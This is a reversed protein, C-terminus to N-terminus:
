ETMTVLYRIGWETKEEQMNPLRLGVKFQRDDALHLVLVTEMPLGKPGFVELEVTQLGGPIEEGKAELVTQWTQASVNVDALHKGQTDFVRAKHFGGGIWREGKAHSRAM